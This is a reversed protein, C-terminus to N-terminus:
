SGSVPDLQREPARGSRREHRPAFWWSHRSEFAERFELAQKVQLVIADDGGYRAQLKQFLRKLNDLNRSMIEELSKEFLLSM